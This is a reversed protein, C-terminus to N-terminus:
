QIGIQDKRSPVSKGRIVILTGGLIALSCVILRWSLHEDLLLIGAFATIVPVTLQLTAADTSRLSPLVQYWLAYGMGSTVAGSLIAYAVGSADVEISGHFVLSLVAAFATARLFNGATDELPRGARRGRLTYVTWSTGACAMLFAAFLPPATVGPLLLALVGGVAIIFGLVRTGRLREGAWISAGIMTSQVVGFLLIAGTAATLMVYAYSFTAAYSFLAFGSTWSGGFRCSGSVSRAIIALTVAGSVIRLSTFTAPDIATDALAMRCLLSNGAFAALCATVSLIFRGTTMTCSAIAPSRLPDPALANYPM